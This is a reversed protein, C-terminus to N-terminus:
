PGSQGWLQIIYVPNLARFIERRGARELRAVNLAIAATKLGRERGFNIAEWLTDLTVANIVIIGKPKLQSLSQYLVEKLNEGSGGIFIRDAPPLGALAGPAEGALYVVNTLGFSTVNVRTLRLAEEDKDVAYVIGPSVLRAAEVTISGTGSGIDYVTQGPALRAKALTLVRVEEKTLPVERRQFLEDPIGPTIYPWRNKGIDM